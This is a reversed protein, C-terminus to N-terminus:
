SHKSCPWPGFVVDQQELGSTVEADGRVFRSDVRDHGSAPRLVEGNEARGQTGNAIGGELQVTGRRAGSAGGEHDDHTAGNTLPEANVTPRVEESGAEPCVCRDPARESQDQEVAKSTLGAHQILGRLAPRALISQAEGLILLRARPLWQGHRASEFGALG